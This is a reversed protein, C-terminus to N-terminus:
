TVNLLKIKSFCKLIQAHTEFIDDLTPITNKLFYKKYYIDLIIKSTIKSQFNFSKNIIIRNNKKLIGRNEDIFWKVKGAYVTSTFKKNNQNNILCVESNNIKTFAIIKGYFDQFGSRKTEYFIKPYIYIKSVDDNTLWSLLYLHHLANSAINWSGGSTVIKIKNLKQKKLYIFKKDYCRPLNVFVKQGHLLKKILLLNKIKNSILKELIWFKIKHKKVINKIVLHRSESTTCIICFDLFRPINKYNSIIKIKNDAYKSYLKRIYLLKNKDKDKIFICLNKNKLCVLSHLYHIGLNGVGILLIKM